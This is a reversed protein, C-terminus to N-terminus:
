LQQIKYGRKELLAIVGHPGCFHLAGAVIMTPIGTKIETQIRPIWLANRHDLLRWWVSPEEKMKPLEMAYLHQCDGARWAAVEEPFRKAGEDAYLLTQLLFVENEFDNMDSLVRVHEDMTEIGGVPRSRTKAEEYVHNDIGFQNSVLAYKPNRILFEAIAWPKLDQWLSMGGSPTIRTLIAYTKPNIKDKVHTGKPYHAAATVKKVFLDNRRPDIEFWFQQSEKIASEIVPALPYDSSRLSHISGLLYFPARANTVRWLFHKGAPPNQGSAPPAAASLGGSTLTWALLIATWRHNQLRDFSFLM